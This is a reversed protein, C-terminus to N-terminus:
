SLTEQRERPDRTTRGAPTFSGRVEFSSARFTLEMVSLDM